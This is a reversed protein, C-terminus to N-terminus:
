GLVFNGSHDLHGSVLELSGAGVSGFINPDYRLGERIMGSADLPCFGDGHGIHALFDPPLFRSKKKGTLDAYSTM